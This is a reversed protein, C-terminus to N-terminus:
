GRAAVHRVRSLQPLLRAPRQVCPWFVWLCGAGHLCGSPESAPGVGSGERVTPSGTRHLSPRTGGSVLPRTHPPARNPLIVARLWSASACPHGFLDRPHLVIGLRRLLVEAHRPVIDAHFLLLDRQRVLIGLLFGPLAARRLLLGRQHLVIGVRREM